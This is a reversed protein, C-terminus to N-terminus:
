PEEFDVPLTLMLMRIGDKCGTGQWDRFGQVNVFRVFVRDRGYFATRRDCVPLAPTRKVSGPARAHTNVLTYEVDQRPLSGGKLNGILAM